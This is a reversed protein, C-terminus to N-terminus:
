IYTANFKVADYRLRLCNTITNYCYTSDVLRKVTTLFRYNVAWDDYQIVLFLLWSETADFKWPILPYEHFLLGIYCAEVTEGTSVEM